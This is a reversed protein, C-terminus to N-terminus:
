KSSTFNITITNKIRNQIGKNASHITKGRNENDELGDKRNENMNLYVSRSSSSSSSSSIKTKKKNINLGRKESEEKLIQLLKHLDEKCAITTIVVIYQSCVHDLM